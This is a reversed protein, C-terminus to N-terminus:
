RVRVQSDVAREAQRQHRQQLAAVAAGAVAAQDQPAVAAAAGGDGDRRAAAAGVRGRGAGRPVSVRNEQNHQTSAHLLGDRVRRLVQALANQPQRVRGAATACTRAGEADGQVRSGEAVLCLGFLM